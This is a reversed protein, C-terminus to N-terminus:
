CLHNTNSCETCNFQVIENGGKYPRGDEAARELTFSDNQQPRGLSDVGVFPNYIFSILDDKYPAIGVDGRERRRWCLHITNFRRFEKREGAHLM